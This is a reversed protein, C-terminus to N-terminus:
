KISFTNAIQVAKTLNNKIESQQGNEAEQTLRKIAEPKADGCPDSLSTFDSDKFGAINGLFFSIYKLGSNQPPRVFLYSQMGVTCEVNMYGVFQFIGPKIEKISDYEPRFERQVSFSTASELTGNILDHPVTDEAKFDTTFADFNPYNQSNDRFYVDHGSKVVEAKIGLSLDEESFTSSPPYKFSLNVISSKYTKWDATSAVSPTATPRSTMTASLSPQPSTLATPQSAQNNMGVYYAGGGVLIATMVVSLLIPLLASRQSQLNM